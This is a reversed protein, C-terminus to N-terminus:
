GTVVVFGRSKKSDPDITRMSSWLDKTKIWYPPYKYRSVDLVLFCDAEKNYAALPSVHGNGVQKLTERSYNAIIINKPNSMESVLMKRFQDLSVNNAYTLTIKVPFTKLIKELTALTMGKQKVEDMTVISSVAPVFFNEQTFMHYPAHNPDVPAEVGLANLVMVSSAVGCFGANEQTVYQIMLPLFPTKEESELLYKKGLSTDLGILDKPLSLFALCTSCLVFAVVAFILSVIKKHNVMNLIGKENSVTKDRLLKQLRNSM